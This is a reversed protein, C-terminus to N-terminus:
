DFRMNPINGNHRKGFTRDVNVCAGIVLAEAHNVSGALVPMRLSLVAIACMAM